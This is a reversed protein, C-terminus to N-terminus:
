AVSLEADPVDASMVCKPGVIKAGWIVSNEGEHFLTM